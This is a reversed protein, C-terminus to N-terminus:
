GRGRKRSRAAALAAEAEDVEQAASDEEQRAAALEQELRKREGAADRARRKSAALRQQAAQVAARVAADDARPRPQPGSTPAAAALAPDLGFGAAVAERALAGRELLPQLDPDISAARLTAGARELVAESVGLRRVERRVRDLAARHERTADAVAGASKGAVAAEQATRLARGAQVLARVESPDERAVRNIAAAPATPKALKAVQAALEPEEPRLAKAREKRAATFEEPPLAYLGAAEQLLQAEM